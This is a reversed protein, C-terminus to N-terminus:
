QCVMEGEPSFVAGLSSGPLDKRDVPEVPKVPQVPQITYECNLARCDTVSQLIYLAASKIFHFETVCDFQDLQFNQAFIHLLFLM